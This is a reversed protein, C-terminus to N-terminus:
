KPPVDNSIITTSAGPALRNAEGKSEARLRSAVVYAAWRVPNKHGSEPKALDALEKYLARSDEDGGKVDKLEPGDLFALLLQPDGLQMRTLTRVLVAAPSAIPEVCGGYSHRLDHDEDDYEEAM